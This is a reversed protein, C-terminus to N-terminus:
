GLRVVLDFRVDFSFRDVGTDNSVPVFSICLFLYGVEVEEGEVPM